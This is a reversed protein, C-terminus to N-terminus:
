VTVAVLWASGVWDALAVTMTGGMVTTTVGIAAVSTAAFVVLAVGVELVNM